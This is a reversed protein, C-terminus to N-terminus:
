VYSVFGGVNAPLNWDKKQDNSCEFKSNTEYKSIQYESKFVTAISYTRELLSILAM